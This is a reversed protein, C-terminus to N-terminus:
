LNMFYIILSIFHSRYSRMKYIYQYNIYRVGGNRVNLLIVLGLTHVQHMNTVTGLQRLVVIINPPIRQMIQTDKGMVVIMVKSPLTVTELPEM